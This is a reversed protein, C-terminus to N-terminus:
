NGPGYSNHNYPENRQKEKWMRYAVNWTGHAAVAAGLVGFLVYTWTPLIFIFLAAGILLWRTFPYNHM